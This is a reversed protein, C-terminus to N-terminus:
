AICEDHEASIQDHGDVVLFHLVFFVKRLHHVVVAGSVGYFDGDVAVLFLHVEGYCEGFRPLLHSFGCGRPLVSMWPIILDCHLLFRQEDNCTRHTRTLGANKAFGRVYQCLLFNSVRSEVEIGEAKCM